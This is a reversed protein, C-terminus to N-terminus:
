YYLYDSSGETVILIKKDASLPKFINEEKKWGSEVVDIYTWQLEYDDNCPNEPLVRILNYPDMNEIYVELDYKLRWDDNDIM